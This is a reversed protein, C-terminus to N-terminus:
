FPSPPSSDLEIAAESGNPAIWLQQPNGTRPCGALLAILPLLNRSRV